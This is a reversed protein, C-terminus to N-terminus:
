NPYSAGPCIIVESFVFCGNILRIGIKVEEVYDHGVPKIDGQCGAKDGDEGDSLPEMKQSSHQVPAEVKPALSMTTPPVAVVSPAVSM